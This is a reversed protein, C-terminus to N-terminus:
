SIAGEGDRSSNEEDNEGGRKNICAHGRFGGDGGASLERRLQTRATDILTAQETGGAIDDARLSQEPILMESMRFTQRRPPREPLQVRSASAQARDRRM